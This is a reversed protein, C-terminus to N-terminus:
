RRTFRGVLALSYLLLTFVCLAIVVVAYWPVPWAFHQSALVGGIAVLMAFIMTVTYRAQM